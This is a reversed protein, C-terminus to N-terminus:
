KDETCLLNLFNDAAINAVGHINIAGTPSEKARNYEDYFSMSINSQWGIRYSPDTKLENVLHAVAEKTTM